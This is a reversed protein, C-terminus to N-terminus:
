RPWGKEQRGVQRDDACEDTALEALEARLEQGRARELQEDAVGV